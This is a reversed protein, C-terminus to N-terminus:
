HLSQNRRILIRINYRPHVYLKKLGKSSIDEPIDNLNGSIEERSLVTSIKILASFGRNKEL